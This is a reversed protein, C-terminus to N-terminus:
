QLDIRIPLTFRVPVAKGNNRGPKWPPMNKVLRITESDLASGMSRLIKIDNIKGEENVVFSVLIKGQLVSDTRLKPYIFNKSIYQYVDGSFEPMREVYSYITSDKKGNLIRTDNLSNPANNGSQAFLAMPFLLLLGLPLRKLLHM